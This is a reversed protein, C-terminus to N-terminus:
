KKESYKEVLQRVNDDIEIDASLPVWQHGVKTQQKSIPFRQRRLKINLAFKQTWQYESFRREPYGIWYAIFEGLEETSYGKDILGILQCLQDFVADDPRWDIHMSLYEHKNASSPTINNIGVPKMLALFVTQRNLSLKLDQSENLTILGVNFLEKLLSNIHRGLQIEDQKANLLRMIEPYNLEVSPEHNSAKPRLYISYLVRANNSIALQLADLELSTM